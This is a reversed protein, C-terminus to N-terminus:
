LGAQIEKKSGRDHLFVAFNNRFRYNRPNEYVARKHLLMAENGYGQLEYLLALNGLSNSYKPDMEYSEVFYREALDVQGELFAVCGLGDVAAASRVLEFSLQFASRAREREGRRLYAVGQDILKQATLRDELDVPRGAICGNMFVLVLFCGSIGTGKIIKLM